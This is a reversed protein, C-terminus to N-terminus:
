FSCEMAALASPQCNPTVLLQFQLYVVECREADQISTDNLEVFEAIIWLWGDRGVHKVRRILTRANRNHQSTLDHVQLNQQQQVAPLSSGILGTAKTPVIDLEGTQLNARVLRGTLYKIESYVVTAGSEFLYMYNGHVWPQGCFRLGSMRATLFVSRAPADLGIQAVYFNRIQDHQSMFIIGRESSARASSWFHSNNSLQYFLTKRIRILENFHDFQVAYVHFCGGSCCVLLGDLHGIQYLHKMQMSPPVNIVSYRRAIGRHLDWVFLQSKLEMPDEGIVYVYRADTSVSYHYTIMPYVLDKTREGGLPFIKRPKCYITASSENSGSKEVHNISSDHGSSSSASDIM